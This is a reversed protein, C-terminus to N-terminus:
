FITSIVFSLDIGFQKDKNQDILTLLRPSILSKDRYRMLIENLLYISDMRTENYDLYKDIIRSTKYPDVSYGNNTAVILQSILLSAIKIDHIRELVDIINDTGYIEVFESLSMTKELFLIIYQAISTDSVELIEQIFRFAMRKSKLEHFNEKASGFLLRLLVLKNETSNNFSLFTPFHNEMFWNGLHNSEIFRLIINGLLHRDSSIGWSEILSVIFSFDNRFDCSINPLMQILTLLKLTQFHLFPCKLLCNQSIMKLHFSCLRIQKKYSTFLDIIGGVSYNSILRESCAFMGFYTSCVREFISESFNSISRQVYLRFGCLLPLLLKKECEMLRTIIYHLLGDNFASGYVLCLTVLDSKTYKLLRDIEKRHMHYHGNFILSFLLLLASDFLVDDELSNLCLEVCGLSIASLALDFQSCIVRLINLICLQLSSSACKLTLVKPLLYHCADLSEFCIDSLLELNEKSLVDYIIDINSNTICSIELKEFSVRKLRFSSHVYDISPRSYPDPLICSDILKRTRFDITAPLASSQFSLDPVQKTIAEVIVVGFSYVDARLTIIKPGNQNSIEPASWGPTGIPYEPDDSLTISSGLDCLKIFGSPSVIINTSKIDGHITSHKHFHFIVESLQTAINNLLKLKIGNSHDRILSYLSVGEFYEMIICYPPYLNVGYFKLLNKHSSIRSYASIENYFQVFHDNNNHASHFFKIVVPHNNALYKGTFIYSYTGHEIKPGFDISDLSISADKFFNLISRDWSENYAFSSIIEKIKSIVDDIKHKQQSFCTSSSLVMIMNSFDNFECYIWRNPDIDFIVYIGPYIAIASERIELLIRELETRIWDLPYNFVSEVWNKDSYLLFKDKADIICNRIKSIYIDQDPNKIMQLREQFFLFCNLCDTFLDFKYLHFLLSSRIEFFNYIIEEMEKNQM